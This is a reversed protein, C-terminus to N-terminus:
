KLLDEACKVEVLHTPEVRSTSSGCTVTEEGQEGFCAPGALRRSRSIPKVTNGAYRRRAPHCRASSGSARSRTRASRLSTMVSSNAVNTLAAVEEAGEPQARSLVHHGQHIPGERGPGNARVDFLM